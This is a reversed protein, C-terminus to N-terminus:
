TAVRGMREKPTTETSGSLSLSKKGTGVFSIHAQQSSKVEDDQASADAGHAILADVTQQYDLNVPELLEYKASSLSLYRTRQYEQNSAEIAHALQEHCNQSAASHFATQGQLM